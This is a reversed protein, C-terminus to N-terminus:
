ASVTFVHRGKVKGGMIDAFGETIESLPRVEAIPKIGARAALDLAEALEQKTGQNTVILSVDDMVMHMLDISIPANPVGIAIVKGRRKTLKFALDYAPGAGSVVITSATQFADDAKDKSNFAQAAGCERALQLKDEAVDWAHVTYGMAVAYLIVLHGVGGCGVVNIITGGPQIQSAKKLAGYATVGACLLPAAHEDSLSDPVKVTSLTDAICYESMGGYMGNFGVNIRKTCFRHAGTLCDDCSQCTRAAPMFGVRDGQKFGAVGPGTKAVVGVPEHGPVYPVLDGHYHMYGAVDSMCLSCATVKVLLEGAQPEPVELDDKIELPGGYEVVVAGKMTKASAM